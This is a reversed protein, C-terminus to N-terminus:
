MYLKINNAFKPYDCMIDDDELLEDVLEIFDEKTMLLRQIKDLSFSLISKEKDVNINEFLHKIVYNRIMEDNNKVKFLNYDEDTKLLKIDDTIEDFSKQENQNNVLEYNKTLTTDVLNILRSIDAINTKTKMKESDSTVIDILKNKQQLLWESYNDYDTKFYGYINPSVSNWLTLWLELYIKNSTSESYQNKLKDFIDKLLNFGIIHNNFFTGILEILSLIINKKKLYEESGDLENSVSDDRLRNKFVDEIHGAIKTLREYEHELRNLMIDRFSIVNDGVKVYWLQNNIMGKMYDIFTKVNKTEKICKGLFVDALQNIEDHSLVKYELTEIILQDINGDTLKNLIM